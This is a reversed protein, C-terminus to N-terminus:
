RGADPKVSFLGEIRPDRAIDGPAIFGERDPALHVGMEEYCKAVYESCIFQNQPDLRGSVIHGAMGEAIRWAIEAIEKDSYPFGLRNLAFATMAVVKDTDENPPFDPHRLVLLSGPYPKPSAPSGNIRSSMPMCRVGVKDISELLLVRDLTDLRWIFAAHCWLSQTGWDIALEPFGTSHFLLIDGTRLQSRIEGYPRGTMAEFAETTVAM